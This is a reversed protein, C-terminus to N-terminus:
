RSARVGPGKEHSCVLIEDGVYCAKGQKWRPSYGSLGSEWPYKQETWM